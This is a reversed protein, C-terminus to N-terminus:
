RMRSSMNGFASDVEASGPEISYKKGEKIKVKENILDDIVEQRSPSKQTSLVTLKTRQEIDFNTIAEGNVMVAVSQARLQSSCCTLIVATAMIVRSIRKSVSTSMTLVATDVM